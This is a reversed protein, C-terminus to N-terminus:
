KERLPPPPDSGEPAPPGGEEGRTEQGEETRPKLHALLMQMEPMTSEMKDSKDPPFFHGRVRRILLFFAGIIFLVFITGFVLTSLQDMSM